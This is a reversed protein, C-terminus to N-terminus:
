IQGLAQTTDETFSLVIPYNGKKKGKDLRRFICNTVTLKQKMVRCTNYMNIWKQRSGSLSQAVTKVGDEGFDCVYIAVLKEGDKEDLLEFEFADLVNFRKSEALPEPSEILSSPSTFEKVSLQLFSKELEAQLQAMEYGTFGTIATNDNQKVLQNSMNMQFINFYIAPLGIM